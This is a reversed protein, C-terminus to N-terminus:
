FLPETAMGIAVWEMPVGIGKVVENRHCGWEKSSGMGKVVGNRHCGWEKSLGM